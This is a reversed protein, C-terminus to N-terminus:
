TMHDDSVGSIGKQNFCKIGICRVQGRSTLLRFVTVHDSQTWMVHGYAILLLSASM